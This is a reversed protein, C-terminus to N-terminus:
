LIFPYRHGLILSDVVNSKLVIRARFCLISSVKALTKSFPTGRDRAFSWLMRSSAAFDGVTSCIGIFIVLSTMLCTGAVSQVAQLFIELFPYGLTLEANLAAEIDGICFMLALMMAFGLIGNILLSLMLAQPVVVSARQIEESM